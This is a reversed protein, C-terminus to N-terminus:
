AEQVWAGIFGPTRGVYRLCGLVIKLWLQASVSIDV